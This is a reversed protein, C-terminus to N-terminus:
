ESTARGRRRGRTPLRWVPQESEPVQQIEGCAACPDGKVIPACCAVCSIIPKPKALRAM